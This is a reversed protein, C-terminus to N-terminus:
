EPLRRAVLKMALWPTFFFTLGFIKMLALMNYITFEFMEPTLNFFRSHLDYAWDHLMTTMGFVFIQFAVCILFSIGFINAFTNLNQRTM